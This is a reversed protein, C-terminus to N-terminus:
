GDPQRAPVTDRAEPAISENVADPEEGVVHLEEDPLNETMVPGKSSQM